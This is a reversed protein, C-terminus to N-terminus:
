SSGCKGHSAHAAFDEPFLELASVVPAAAMEILSCNGKGRTFKAIKAVQANYDGAEGAQVKKLVGAITNTEMRCPPCQGCQERMFFDAIEIVREVICTGEEVLSLGACGLGSGAERVAEHTMAVDLASAPLFASSMAPLLAKIPKGGKPGGGLDIVARFSVGLEVEHIGPKAFSDDLTVLMTGAGFAAAGDRVITPVHAFTEVNNVTTPKGWLGAEGPYPPKKRPWPKRGEIVELAATEEGAVYSTPALVVKVEVNGLLDAGRAEEIASNASAIADEMDEILYLYVGSAGTAHACLLAGELVRHPYKSVLFRDKRSGPEHEGGNAVVYKPSGEAARALEWKRAAPFGAGGRGRLGSETVVAIVEEPPATRAQRLAQYGGVELYDALKEPPADSPRTLLPMPTDAAPTM